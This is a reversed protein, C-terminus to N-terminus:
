CLHLTPLAPSRSTEDDDRNVETSAPFRLPISPHAFQEHKRAERMRSPHPVPEAISLPLSVHAAFHAALRGVSLTMPFVLVSM